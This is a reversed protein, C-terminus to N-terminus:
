CDSFMITVNQKIDGPEVYGINYNYFYNNVM